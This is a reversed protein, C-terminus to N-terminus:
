SKCARVARSSWKKVKLVKKWFLTIIHKKLSMSSKKFLDYKEKKVNKSIYKGTKEIKLFNGHKIFFM